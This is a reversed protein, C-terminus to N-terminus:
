FWYGPLRNPLRPHAALGDLWNQTAYLFELAYIIRATKTSMAPVSDYPYIIYIYIYRKRLVDRWQKPLNASEARLNALGKSRRAELQICGEFISANVSPWYWKLSVELPIWCFGRFCCASRDGAKKENARKANPHTEETKKSKKYPIKLSRM